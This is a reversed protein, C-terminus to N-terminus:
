QCLFLYLPRWVVARFRRDSGCSMLYGPLGDIIIILCVYDLLACVNHFQHETWDRSQVHMRALAVVWSGSFVSVFWAVDSFLSVVNGTRLIFYVGSFLCIMYSLGACLVIQLFSLPGHHRGVVM